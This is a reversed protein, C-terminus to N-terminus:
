KNVCVQLQKQSACAHMTIFFHLLCNFVSETSQHCTEVIYSYPFEDCSVALTQKKMSIIYFFSKIDTAIM